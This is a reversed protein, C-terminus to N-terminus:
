FWYILPGNPVAHYMNWVAIALSQKRFCGSIGQSTTFIGKLVDGVTFIEPLKLKSSPPGPHSLNPDLM